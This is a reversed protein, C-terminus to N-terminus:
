NRIWEGDSTKQWKRNFDTTTVAEQLLSELDLGLNTTNAPVKKIQSVAATKLANSVEGASANPFSGLYRAVAGTVHPAAFSTGSALISEFSKTEEILHSLSIIDEGPALIDVVPGFNSFSSYAKRSGYSGVTIVQDVHAPSYTSADRGDNGAAAVYIVGAKISNLIAEDLVNYATTGIDVGLSLNVVMPRDPNELKARTVYDVAALLTTIDTRGERTLVKLSHIRVSPAVGVVGLYDNRAGITGAVHSGHGAEDFPNGQTGPDFGSVVPANEEDWYLSDPNEFLMTFDKKEVYELDDWGSNRSAGSDLIYVHVPNDRYYNTWYQNQNSPVPTNIQTIGWPVIQNDHWGDSVTGLDSLDFSADPEVFLIDPDDRMEELLANLIESDFAITIGLHAGDIFVKVRITQIFTDLEQIFEEISIGFENLLASLRNFDEIDEMTLGEKALEEETLGHEVLLASTVQDDYKSLLRPTVGYKDLIRRTVDYQNLLRRTIGYADLIRHTIGYKDLIRRTIGYEELIRSTVEYKSLIRPTVGDAEYENFALFLGATTASSKGASGTTTRISADLLGPHRLIDRKPPSSVVEPDIPHLSDELHNADTLADCGQLLVPSVLLLAVMALNIWRQMPSLTKM